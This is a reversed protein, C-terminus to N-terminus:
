PYIYPPNNKIFAKTANDREKSEKEKQILNDIYKKADSEFMFAKEYIWENSYTYEWYVEYYDPGKPVIKFKM